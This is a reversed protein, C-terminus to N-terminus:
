RDQKRRRRAVVFLVGAGLLAGATMLAPYLIRDGVLAVDDDPLSLVPLQVGDLDCASVPAVATDSQQLAVGITAALTDGQAVQLGVDLMGLTLSLRTVEGPALMEILLTACPAVGDLPITPGAPLASSAASLTLAGAFEPSSADIGAVTVFLEAPVSSDNKVYLTATQRAGPVLVASRFVGGPLTSSFTVGDASVVVGGDDAEAAQAAGLVLAIAALATVSLARLM